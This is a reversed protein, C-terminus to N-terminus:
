EARIIPWGMNYAYKFAKKLSETNTIETAGDTTTDDYGTWVLVMGNSEILKKSAKYLPNKLANHM